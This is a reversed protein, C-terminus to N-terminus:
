DEFSSPPRCRAAVSVHGAKLMLVSAAEFTGLGGPVIGITRVLNAIVRVRALRVVREATSGFFTRELIGKSQLNLVIVDIGLDEAVALIKEYPKGDLVLTEVHLGQPKERAVFEDLRQRIEQLRQTRENDIYATAEYVLNL